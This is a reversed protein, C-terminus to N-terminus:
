PLLRLSEALSSSAMARYPLAACFDTSRVILLRFRPVSFLPRLPLFTVLLLCATAIPSESARRFPAFTGAFRVYSRCRNAITVDVGRPLGDRPTGNRGGITVPACLAGGSAAEGRRQRPMGHPGIFRVLTTCSEFVHHVPGDGRTSKSPCKTEGLCRANRRDPFIREARWRTAGSAGRSGRRAHSRTGGPASPATAHFSGELM